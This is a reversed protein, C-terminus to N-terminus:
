TEASGKSRTRRGIGEAPPATTKKDARKPRGPGKKSQPKEQDESPQEVTEGNKEADKVDVAGEKKQQKAPKDSIDAEGGQEREKQGDVEDHTRKEGTEPGKQGNEDAKKIGKGDDNKEFATEGKEGNEADKEEEGRDDADVEKNLESARKFVDNGSREVHLAPNEPDANKKVTKGATKIALEGETRVEAVVGGPKGNGWNWTVLPINAHLLM